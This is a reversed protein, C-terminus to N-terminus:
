IHRLDQNSKKIPDTTWRAILQSMSEVLESLKSEELDILVISSVVEEERKPINLIRLTVIWIALVSALGIGLYLLVLDILSKSLRQIDNESWTLSTTIINVAFGIIVATLIIVRAGRLKEEISKSLSLM